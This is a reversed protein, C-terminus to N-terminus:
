NSLPYCSRQNSGPRSLFLLILKRKLEQLFYVLVSPSALSLIILSTNITPQLESLAFSLIKQCPSFILSWSTISIRCISSEVLCVKCLHIRSHLLNVIHGIIPLFGFTALVLLSELSIRIIRTRRRATLFLIRCTWAFQAVSALLRVGFSMLIDAFCPIDLTISTTGNSM